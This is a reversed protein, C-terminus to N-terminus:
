SDGCCQGGPPWTRAIEERDRYSYVTEVRGATGLCTGSSDVVLDAGGQICTDVVLMLCPRKGSPSVALLEVRLPIYSDTFQTKSALSPLYQIESKLGFQVGSLKIIGNNVDSPLIM